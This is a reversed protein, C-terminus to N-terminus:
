TRPGEGEAPGYFTVQQIVNQRQSPYYKELYNQLPFLLININM